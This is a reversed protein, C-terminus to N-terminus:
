VGPSKLNFIGYMIRIHSTSTFTVTNLVQLVTVYIFINQPMFHHGHHDHKASKGPLQYSIKFPVLTVPDNMIIEM